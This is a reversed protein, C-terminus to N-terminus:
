AAPNKEALGQETAEHIIIAKRKGRWVREGGANVPHRLNKRANRQNERYKGM